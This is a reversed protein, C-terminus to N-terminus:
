STVKLTHSRNYRRYAVVFILIEGIIFLLGAIYFWTEIYSLPNMEPMEKNTLVIRKFPRGKMEYGTESRYIPGMITVDEGDRITEDTLTRNCNIEHLTEKADFIDQGIGNEAGISVEGGDNMTLKFPVIKNILTTRIFDKRKGKGIKKTDVEHEYIVTWHEPSFAKGHLKVVDGDKVNQLNETFPRFYIQTYYFSKKYVDSVNVLLMIIGALTLMSWITVFWANFGYGKKHDVNKEVEKKEDEEFEKDIDAMEKEKDGPGYFKKIGHEAAWKTIEDIKAKDMDTSDFDVDVSITDDETGIVIDQYGVSLSRIQGLHIKNKAFDISSDSFTVADKGMRIYKILYLVAGVTFLLAILGFMVAGTVDENSGNMLGITKSIFLKSLFAAVLFLLVASFIGKKKRKIIIPQM